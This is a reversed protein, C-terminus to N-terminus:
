SLVATLDDDSPARRLAAAGREGRNMDDPIMQRLFDQHPSFRRAAHTTNREELAEIKRWVAEEHKEEEAVKNLIWVGSFVGILVLMVGIATGPTSLEDIAAQEIGAQQM